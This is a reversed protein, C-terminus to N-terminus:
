QGLVIRLVEGTRASVLIYLGGDLDGPEPDIACNWADGDSSVHFRKALKDVSLDSGGHNMLYTRWASAAIHRAKAESIPVYAPSAAAEPAAGDRLEASSRSGVCASM